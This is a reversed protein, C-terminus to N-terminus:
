GVVAMVAVASFAVPVLTFKTGEEGARSARQNNKLVCNVLCRPIMAIHRGRGPFIWAKEPTGDRAGPVPCQVAESVIQLALVSFSGKWQCTFGPIVKRGRQREKM